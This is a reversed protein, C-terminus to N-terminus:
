IARVEPEIIVVPTKMETFQTQLKFLTKIYQMKDSIVMSISQDSFLEAVMRAVEANNQAEDFLFSIIRNKIIRGRNVQSLVSTFYPQLSLIINPQNSAYEKLFGSVFLQVNASPHQSLKILYEEGQDQNFFRTVLDRGFRQVDPYVNDCVAITRESNWFSEDFNNQFFEIARKRSDDWRNDLIRIAESYNNHTLSVDAEFSDLAWDRVSVTPNKTLLALQKVSFEDAKRAPLILAGVWEAMKSKANLLRWLLNSDVETHMPELVVVLELMDDSFGEFPEAKFFEPLVYDFTEIRFDQNDITSIVQRSKQRLAANEDVLARFLLAKQKIKEETSLRALLAIAGARIEPYESDSMLTYSKELEAFSYDSAELLKAALLQYEYEPRALLATISALSAKAKLPHLLLWEVRALTNSQQAPEADLLASVLREGLESYHAQATYLYSKAFEYVDDHESLLMLLLLDLKDGLTEGDLADLAKKRVTDFKSALVAKMVDINALDDKLYDLALLATNEYPRQVLKVWDQQTIKDLYATKKSFKNFAFNNVMQAKCAQLLDLLDEEAQDWLAPYAEPKSTEKAKKDLRWIDRYNKSFVRSNNHLIFNLASLRPFHTLGLKKSFATLSEDSDDAQLLVAKGYQTYSSPQFKAINGLTRVMRRRFYEKTAKSFPKPIDDWYSSPSPKTAEIRYNLIALVEADDRFEAIKYFRRFTQTFPSKVPTNKIVSLAHKRQKNDALASWYTALASSQFTDLLYQKPKLAQKRLSQFQEEFIRNIQFNVGVEYKSKTALSLNESMFSSNYDGWKFQDIKKMVEDYVGAEKIIQHYNSLQEDTITGRLGSTLNSYNEVRQWLRMVDKVKGTKKIAKKLAKIGGGWIWDLEANQANGVQFSDGKFVANLDMTAILSMYLEYDPLYQDAKKSILINAKYDLLNEIADKLRPYAAQNKQIIIASNESLYKFVYDDELADDIKLQKVASEVEERVGHLEMVLNIYERDKTTLTDFSLQEIEDYQAVKTITEALDIADYEPIFQEPQSSLAMKIETLMYQTNDPLKKDFKDILPLAKEDAIRGLTWLISYYDLAEKNVKDAKLIKEIAPVAGKIRLEGAKWITRGLSYGNITKADGNSNFFDSSGQSFQELREIINQDRGMKTSASVQGPQSEPMSEVAQKGVIKKIIPDYGSVVWYGKNIKSVLLSDAIKTAESLIVPSKTKCGERLNAGHKGYRFNVLYDGATEVLDVEYDKDSTEGKKFRLITQRILKM